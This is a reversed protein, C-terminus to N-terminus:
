RMRSTFLRGCELAVRLSLSNAVGSLRWSSAARVLRPAPATSAETVSCPGKSAKPRSCRENWTSYPRSSEGFDLPPDSDFPDDETKIPGGTRAYFGAGAYSQAVIRRTPLQQIAELLHDTAQTRLRNTAAFAEDFKRFDSFDTLATLEHVVVDPEAQTVAEIVADRDLADLIVPVAGAARLADAKGPMRTSGVVTHGNSILQPILRQGLVGTAGAVFIKM